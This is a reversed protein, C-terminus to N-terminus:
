RAMKNDRLHAPVLHSLAPHMRQQSFNRVVGEKIKNMRIGALRIVSGSDNTLSVVAHRIRRYHGSFIDKTHLKMWLLALGGPQLQQGIKCSTVKSSSLSSSIKWQLSEDSM